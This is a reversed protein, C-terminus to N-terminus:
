EPPPSHIEMYPSLLYPNNQKCRIPLLNHVISSEIKYDIFHLKTEDEGNNEVDKEPTNEGSLDLLHIDINDQLTVATFVDNVTITVVLFLAFIINLHM